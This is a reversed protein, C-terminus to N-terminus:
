TTPPSATSSATPAAPTRPWTAASRASSRAPRTPRTSTRRARRRAVRRPQDRGARRGRAPQALDVELIRRLRTLAILIGEEVPLAGGSLGLGLRAGGVAGHRRPLRGRRRAGARGHGAAGGRPAPRRVPAARGVRLHAAPPHTLVHEDGAIRQLRSILDSADVRGNHGYRILELSLARRVEAPGALSARDRGLSKARYLARDAAGLLAEPDLPLPPAGAVGVSLTVPWSEASSREGMERASSRPWRSGWRRPRLSPLLIVFEDGGIRALVDVDRLGAAM